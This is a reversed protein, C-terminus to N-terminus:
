QTSTTCSKKNITNINGLFLYRTIELIVFTKTLKKFLLLVGSFPGEASGFFTKQKCKNESCLKHEKFLPHFFQVSDTKFRTPLFCLSHGAATRIRQKQAISLRFALHIDTKKQKREGTKSIYKLFVSFNLLPTPLPSAAACKIKNCAADDFDTDVCWQKNAIKM